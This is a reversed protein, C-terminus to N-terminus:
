QSKNDLAKRVAEREEESLEYESEGKILPKAYINVKDRSYLSSFIVGNGEEDMLCTAFSHNGGQDRFPNFRLTHVKQLSKMLRGNIDDIEKAILLGRHDLKEIEKVLGVLTEGLDEGRKGRLIKQLRMEVLFLRGFAFLSLIGLVILALTPYDINAIAPM